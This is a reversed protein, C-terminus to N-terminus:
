TGTVPSSKRRYFLGKFRDVLTRTVLGEPRVVMMLIILIGFFVFRWEESVRLAEPMLTFFVAGVLPGFATQTGGIM